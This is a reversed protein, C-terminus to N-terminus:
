QTLLCLFSPTVGQSPVSLLLSGPFPCSSVPALSGWLLEFTFPPLLSSLGRKTLLASCESRKSNVLCPDLRRQIYRNIYKLYKQEPQRQESYFCPTM